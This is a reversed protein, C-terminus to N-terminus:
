NHVERCNLQGHPLCVRAPQAHSGRRDLADLRLRLDECAKTDDVSAIVLCELGSQAKVSYIAVLDATPTCTEALYRILPHVADKYASDSLGPFPMKTGSVTGQPDLIYGTLRAECWTAVGNLACGNAQKAENMMAPSYPYNPLSAIPRDVVCNLSPGILHRGPQLSHCVACKRFVQQGIAVAGAETLLEPNKDISIPRSTEAILIADRVIAALFVLLCVVLLAEKISRFLRTLASEKPNAM